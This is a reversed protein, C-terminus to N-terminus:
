VEIGNSLYNTGNPHRLTLVPSEMIGLVVAATCNLTVPEGISTISNPGHIEVMLTDEVTDCLKLQNNFCILKNDTIM